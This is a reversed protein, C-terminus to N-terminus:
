EESARNSGRLYIENGGREESPFIRGTNAENAMDNNERIVGGMVGAMAGENKFKMALNWLGFGLAVKLLIIALLLLLGFKLM